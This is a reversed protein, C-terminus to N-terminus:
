SPIALETELFRLLQTIAPDAPVDDRVATWLDVGLADDAPAIRVFRPDGEAAFTWMFGAGIGAEVAARLAQWTDVHAVAQINDSFFGDWRRMNPAQSWGSFRIWDYDQPKLGLGRRAVYETAAYGAQRLRAIKRGRVYAPPADSLCLGIDCKRRTVSDAPDPTSHVSVKVHNAGSLFRAIQPMYEAGLESSVALRLERREPAGIAELDEILSDIIRTMDDAAQLARRGAETPHYGDEGQEFLPSGLERELRELRRGVTTRDIRLRKAAHTYNGARVAELFIRLNDWDMM